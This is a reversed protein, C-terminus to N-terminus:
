RSTSSGDNIFSASSTACRLFVQTSIFSRRAVARSITFSTRSKLVNLYAIQFSERHCIIIKLRISSMVIRTYDENHKNKELSLPSPWWCNGCSWICLRACDILMTITTRMIMSLQTLGDDMTSIFTEVLHKGIM